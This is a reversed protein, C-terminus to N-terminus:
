GQSQNRDRLVPLQVVSVCGLPDTGTTFNQGMELAILILNGNGVVENPELVTVQSQTILPELIGYVTNIYLILM